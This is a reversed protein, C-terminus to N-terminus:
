NNITSVLQSLPSLRMNKARVGGEATVSHM